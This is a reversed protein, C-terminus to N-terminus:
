RVQGTLESARSPPFLSMPPPLAPLSPMTRMLVVVIIIIFITNQESKTGDYRVIPFFDIDFENSEDDDDDNEM